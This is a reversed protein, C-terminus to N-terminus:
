KISFRPLFSAPLPYACRGTVCEDGTSRLFPACRCYIPPASKDTKKPRNHNCSRVIGPCFIPRLAPFRSPVRSGSLLVATPQPAHPQNSKTKLAARIQAMVASGDFVGILELIFAGDGPAAPSIRHHTAQHPCFSQGFARLSLLNCTVQKSPDDQRRWRLRLGGAHLHLLMAVAQTLLPQAGDLNPHRVHTRRSEARLGM